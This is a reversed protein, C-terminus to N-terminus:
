MLDKLALKGRGRAGKKGKAGLGVLPAVYPAAASAYPAIEKGIKVAEKVYPAAKRAFREIGKFANQFINGGVMEVDHHPYPVSPYSAFAAIQSADFLGIQEFVQYDAGIRVEGDYCHITLLEVGTLDVGTKNVVDIEYQFTVDQRLGPMYQNQTGYDNPTVALISGIGRSNLDWPNVLDGHWVKAPMYIGNKFSMHYLSEKQAENLVTISGMQLRARTIPLFREPSTNTAPVRAYILTLRPIGPLTIANSNLTAPTDVPSGAGGAGVVTGISRPDYTFKRFNYSHSLREPQLGMPPTVYNVLLSASNYTFSDVSFAGAMGSPTGHKWMKSLFTPDWLLYIYLQNINALGFDNEDGQDLLPHVLPECIDFTVTAQAAAGTVTLNDNRTIKFNALHPSHPSGVSTASYLGTNNVASYSALYDPYINTETNQLTKCLDPAYRVASMLQGTQSDIATGNVQMQITQLSNNLVYNALNDFGNNLVTLAPDNSSDSQVSFNMQCGTLRYFIKKDINANVPPKLNFNLNQTSGDGGSPQVVRYTSFSPSVLMATSKRMTIDIPPYITRVVNSSM